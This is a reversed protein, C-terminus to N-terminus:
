PYPHASRGRPPATKSAWLATRASSPMPRSLMQRSFGTQSLCPVTRTQRARASAWTVRIAVCNVIESGADPYETNYVIRHDGRRCSPVIRLARVQATDAAPKHQQNPNSHHHPREAQEWAHAVVVGMRAGVSM